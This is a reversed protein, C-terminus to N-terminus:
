ADRTGGLYSNTSPSDDLGAPTGAHVVEENHHPGRENFFLVLSLVVFAAGCALFPAASSREYLVGGAYPGIISSTAVALNFLGFARGTASGGLVEGVGALAVGQGAMFAGAFFLVGALPVLSRVTVLGLMAASFVLANGGLAVVTGWKDACRGLIVTIVAQGLSMISGTLGIFAFSTGMEDGLYQPILPQIMYYAVAMCSYTVVFRVFRKQRLLGAYGAAADETHASGHSSSASPAQQDVLCLVAVSALFFVFTILFVNRTGIVQALWGGLIPSAIMGAAYGSNIVGFVLGSMGAPARTAAYANMAPYGIMSLSYLASAAAVVKYDRAFYYLLPAPVGVLWSLIMTRKREYKDAIVGGPIYSLALAVMMVSYVVGVQGPSAGLSRIYLPFVYAYLGYGWGWLFLSLTMM